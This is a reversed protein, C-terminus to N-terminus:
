GAPAFLADLAALLDESLRVAAAAVNQTVQETRTAGAIVSTVAERSLLWGIAAQM